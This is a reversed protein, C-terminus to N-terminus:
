YRSMGLQRRVHLLNHTKDQFGEKTAGDVLRIEYLPSLIGPQRWDSLTATLEPPACARLFCEYICVHVREEDKISHSLHNLNDTVIRILM